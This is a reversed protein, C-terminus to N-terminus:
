VFGLNETKARLLKKIVINNFSTHIIFSINSTFIFRFPHKASLKELIIAFVRPLVKLQSRYDKAETSVSGNFIDFNEKYLRRKSESLLSQIQQISAPSERFKYM